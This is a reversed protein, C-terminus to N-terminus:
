KKNVLNKVKFKSLFDRINVIPIEENLNDISSLSDDIKYVEIGEEIEITSTRKNKKM